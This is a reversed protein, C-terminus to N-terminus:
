RAGCLSLFQWGHWAAQQWAGGDDSDIGAIKMIGDDALPRCELLKGLKRQAVPAVDCELKCQLHQLKVFHQM